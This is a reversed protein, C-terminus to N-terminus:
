YTFRVDLRVSRMPRVAVVQGFTPSTVVTDIAAFQVANLLNNAVVSVNVARTEGIRVVRTLRADVQRGGPGIITNRAATGFAGPAPVAFAGTNFYRLLTPHEVEVPTGTVDARLTGSTGRAVEAASGVIRASYPTGSQAAISAALSWDGLLAALFGGGHLWRRDAGFPLEVLIEASVQHRRDFSSLGREADLDRDDQAVVVAGGGVSSANDISKAFTYSLGGGIGGSFRKRLRVTAAHLTSAGESSQWLFPQVGDIRLGDPDRNPARLIDLHSGRTGIYGGGLTWRRALTRDVDVNWTHAVGLQYNRDIGYNNTTTAPAARDLPDSLSLPAAPAGIATNTVAFPPQATLQRAISAYSGSNFSVGYGTRVVTSRGARWALGIRPALNDTDTHVLAAPFLGSFAGAEGAMVPSAATFGPTVDLAVMRGDAETFPEFVEYRIGANLTLGASARWNDQLFLAYSRGRLGVVGPGYQVATQQPLGLLFDAFDLGSGPTVGAGAGTYLGTFIFSGRASADTRSDSWDRTLEGGFRLQHRGRPRVATYAIRLRRDTRLAPTVDRLSAYSSFLLDPVGWAFPDTAAGAIGALAAVDEVGAYQNVTASRTQSLGVRVNHMMGGRFANVAVPATFSSGSRDGDVTSFAGLRAQDNRRYRVQANLVVGTGRRGGPGRGGSGFRGGRGGRGGFGGAESSFNHTIRLNVADGASPSTRAAHFNRIAGPLNPAPLFRLLSVAAPALRSAPIRNDPFPQGTLPDMVAVDHGSFDGQRVAVTPVTAYQDVLDSSRNGQVNVFFTTRSGDYLGPIRLPGGVAGGYGQRLYDQGTQAGARLAYPTADLASGGFSYAVSGQYRNRGRLRRGGFGAPGGPWPGPGARRGPGAGAGPGAGPGLGPPALGAFPDRGGFGGPRGRLIGDPLAGGAPAFEGRGLALLRERMMRRDLRSAEGQITVADTSGDTSFGPPLLLRAAPDGSDEPILGPNGTLAAEPEVGLAAFRRGPGRRGVAQGPAQQTRARGDPPAGPAAGAPPVVAPPEDTAASTSRSALTLDFDLSVDCIGPGPTLDHRVAAFGMLDTSLRYTRGAPLTLRYAGDVGTSTAAVVRDGDHAVLAVGPLLTGGSVIRGSVRCSAPAPRGTRPPQRELAQLDPTALIVGLLLAAGTLVGPSPSGPIAPRPTGHRPRGPASVSLGAALSLRQHIPVREPAM